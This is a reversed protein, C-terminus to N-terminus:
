SEDRHFCFVAKGVLAGHTRMLSCSNRGSAFLQARCLATRCCNLERFFKASWFKEGESKSCSTDCDQRYFNKWRSSEGTLNVFRRRESILARGAKETISGGLLFRPPRYFSSTFALLSARDRLCRRARGARRLLGRALGVPAWGPIIVRESFFVADAQLPLPLPM